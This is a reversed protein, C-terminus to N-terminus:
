RSPEKKKNMQEKTQPLSLIECRAKFLILNLFLLFL